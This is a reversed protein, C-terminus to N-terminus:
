AAGGTERSLLWARVLGLQVRVTRVGLREHPMGRRCWERVAWLSVSYHSALDALTLRRENSEATKKATEM